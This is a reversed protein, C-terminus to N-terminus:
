QLKILQTKSIRARLTQDNAHKEEIHKMVDEKTFPAKIVFGCAPCTFDKKEARIVNEGKVGSLELPARLTKLDYCEGFLHKSRLKVRLRIM